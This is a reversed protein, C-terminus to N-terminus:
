KAGGSTLEPKTLEDSPTPHLDPDPKTLKPPKPQPAKLNQVVQEYFDSLQSRMEAIFTGPGRGNKRGMKATASVDFSRPERKPEEPHLLLTPDELAEALTATQTVSTNAFSTTLRVNPAANQLQRLLWRVRTLPRGERPASVSVRTTVLGSRLDADVAIPGEADPISLATSLNGTEALEKAIGMPKAADPGRGRKKLKVEVGLRQSLDLSLYQTFQGWREAVAMTQPDRANVTGLRAAERVAVWDPGMGDFGYAGSRDDDMFFILEELLWSQELDDVGQFRHELVARSMIRWWSVHDVPVARLKRGDVKYPLSDDSPRLQTSVTLFADFGNATALSLYRDVQSEDIPTGGTKVEVLCSWTKKGRTIIIAGDPIHVAKADDKLRVECFTEIRGKPPRLDRLVAQCFSPVAGMVSLLAATARQEQEKQGRIGATPILRAPTWDARLQESIGKTAM